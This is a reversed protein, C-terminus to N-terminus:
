VKFNVNFFSMVLFIFSVTLISLVLLRINEMIDLFRTDNLDLVTIELGRFDTSIKPLDELDSIGTQYDVEQVISQVNSITQGGLKNVISDMKSNISELGDVLGDSDTDVNFNSSIFLEKLMKDISDLYDTTKFTITNSKVNLNNIIYVNHETNPVLNDFTLSTTDDINKYFNGDLYIDGFRFDYMDWKVTVFTDSIDIVELPIIQMFLSPATYKVYIESGTSDKVKYFYSRSAELGYETFIYDNTTLLEDFNINDLSKSIDFPPAGNIKLNITGTSHTDVQATLGFALNSFLFIFMLTLIIKKM